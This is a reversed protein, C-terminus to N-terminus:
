NAVQRINYYQRLALLHRSPLLHIRARMVLFLKSPLLDFFIVPFLVHYLGVDLERAEFFLRQEVTVNDVIIGEVVM